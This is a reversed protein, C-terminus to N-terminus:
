YNPKKWYSFSKFQFSRFEQNVLSETMIEQFGLILVFIMNKPLKSNLYVYLLVCM